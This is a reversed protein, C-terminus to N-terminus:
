LAQAFRGKNETRSPTSGRDRPAKRGRAERPRLDWPRSSVSEGLGPSSGGTPQHNASSGLRRSRQRGGAGSNHLYSDSRVWHLIVVPLFVGKMQGTSTEPCIFSKFEEIKETRTKLNNRDNHHLFRCGFFVDRCFQFSRGDPPIRSLPSEGNGRNREICFSRSLALETIEPHGSFCPM